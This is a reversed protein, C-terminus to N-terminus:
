IRNKRTKYKKGGNYKIKPKAKTYKISLQPALIYKIINNPLKTKKMLMLAAAPKINNLYPRVLKIFCRNFRLFESINEINNLSASNNVENESFYMKMSKIIEKKENDNLKDFLLKAVKCSGKQVAYDIIKLKDEISTGYNNGPISFSIEIETTYIDKILENDILFNFFDINDNDIAYQIIRDIDRNLDILDNHSNLNILRQNNNLVNELDDSYDKILELYEKIYKNSKYQKKQTNIWDINKYELLM